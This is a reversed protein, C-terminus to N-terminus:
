DNVLRGMRVEFDGPRVRAEFNFFDYTHSFPKVTNNPMVQKGVAIMRVPAVAMALQMDWTDKGSVTVYVYVYHKVDVSVM